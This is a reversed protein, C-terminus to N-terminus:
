NSFHKGGWIKCGSKELICFVLKWILLYLLFHKPSHCASHITNVELCICTVHYLMYINKNPVCISLFNLSSLAGPVPDIAGNGQSSRKATPLKIELHEQQSLIEAGCNSAQHSCRGEGWLEIWSTPISPPARVCLCRIKQLWGAMRCTCIGLSEWLRSARRLNEEVPIRNRGWPLRPTLEWLIVSGWAREWWLSGISGLNLLAQPPSGPPVSTCWPSSEKM